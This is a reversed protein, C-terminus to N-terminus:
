KRYSSFNTCSSALKWLMGTVLGTTMCHVVLYWIFSISMIKVSIGRLKRHTWHNPYQLREFDPMKELLLFHHFNVLKVWHLFEVKRFSKKLHSGNRSFDPYQCSVLALHLEFCWIKMPLFFSTSKDFWKQSILTQFTAEDQVRLFWSPNGHWDLNGHYLMSM